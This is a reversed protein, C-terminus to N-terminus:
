KKKRILPKKNRLVSGRFDELPEKQRIREFDEWTACLMNYSEGDIIIPLTVTEIGTFDENLFDAVDDVAYFWEKDFQIKNITAEKRIMAETIKKM